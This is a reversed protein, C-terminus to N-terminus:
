SADNALPASLWRDQLDEIVRVLNDLRFPKVYYDCAGLRRARTRDAKNPSATLVIIRLDKLHPQQKLWALVGFGTLSPMKLDLLLLDPLPYKRRDEYPPAGCLYEVVQQGDRVVMLRHPSHLRDMAHQVFFADDEEDEAFLIVSM